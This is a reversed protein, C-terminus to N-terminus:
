DTKTLLKLYINRCNSKNTINNIIEEKVEGDSVVRRRLRWMKDDKMGVEYVDAIRM